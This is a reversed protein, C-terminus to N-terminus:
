QWQILFCMNEQNMDEEIDKIMITEPNSIKSEKCAGTVLQFHRYLVPILISDM